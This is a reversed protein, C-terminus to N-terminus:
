NTLSASIANQRLDRKVHDVDAPLRRRSPSPGTCQGRRVSEPRQVAIRWARALVIEWGDSELM